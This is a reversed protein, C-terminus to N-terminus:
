CGRQGCGCRPGNPMVQMHGVEMCSGVKGRLIKGEYVCGGGIGTGPFVGVVCRSSQAAGFRFEGYVGADVDNAVVVPCNFEKELSQKIPVKKWGLNPAEILVGKDLELPGACGVGIGALNKLDVKAEDLSKRITQAIRELGSETGENAKTRKRRRGIVKLDADFVTSLMKTGGLDFGVWCTKDAAESETMDTQKEFNTSLCSIVDCHDHKGAEVKMELLPVMARATTFVM